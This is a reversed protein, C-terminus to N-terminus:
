LLVLLFPVGEVRLVDEEKVMGLEKILEISKEGVINFTADERVCRIIEERLEEKDVEEGSFFVGTLDLQMDGQTFKKGYIEKDCISIVSRYSKHVKFLFDKVM